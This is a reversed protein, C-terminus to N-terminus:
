RLFGGGGCDRSTSGHLYTSGGWKKLQTQKYQILLLQVATGNRKTQNGGRCKEPEISHEVTNGGTQASETYVSNNQYGMLPNDIGGQQDGPSSPAKGIILKGKSM